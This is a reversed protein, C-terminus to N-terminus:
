GSVTAAARGSRMPARISGEVGPHLDCRDGIDTRPGICPVRATVSQTWGSWFPVAGMILLEGRTTEISDPNAPDPGAAM